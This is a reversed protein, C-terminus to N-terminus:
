IWKPEVTVWDSLYIESSFSYNNYWKSPAVIVSKNSGLYAAWWSFTSNSMIMNKANSLINFTIQNNNFTQDGLMLINFRFISSLKKALTNVRDKNDSIVLLSSIHACSGKSLQIKDLMKKIANIYYEDDLIGLSSSLEKEYCRVHIVITMEGSLQNSSIVESSIQNYTMKKCHVLEQSIDALNLPTFNVGYSILRNAYVQTQFWGRVCRIRNIHSININYKNLDSPDTYMEGTKIRLSEFKKEWWKSNHRNNTRTRYIRDLLTQKNTFKDETIFGFKAIEPVRNDIYETDVIYDTKAHHSIYLGASLQFLQNGLGGRLKVRIM